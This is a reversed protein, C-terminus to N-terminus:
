YSVVIKASVCSFNRRGSNRIRFDQTYQVFAETPLLNSSEASGEGAAATKESIGCIAPVVRPVFLREARVFVFFLAPVEFLVQASKM